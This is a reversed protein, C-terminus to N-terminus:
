LLCHSYNVMDAANTEEPCVYSNQMNSSGCVFLFWTNTKEHHPYSYHWEFSFYAWKFNLYNAVIDSM